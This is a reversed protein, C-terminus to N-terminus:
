PLKPTGAEGLESDLQPVEIVSGVLGEVPHQGRKASWQPPDGAVPVIEQGHRRRPSRNLSGPSREICQRTLLDETASENMPRPQVFPDRGWGAAPSLRSEPARRPQRSGATGQVCQEVPKSEPSSSTTTTQLPQLQRCPPRRWRARSMRNPHTLQAYAELGAASRLPSAAAIANGRSYRSASTTTGPDAARDPARVGAIRLARRGVASEIHSSRRTRAPASSSGREIAANGGDQTREPAGADVPERGGAALRKPAKGSMTASSRHTSRRNAASRPRSRQCRAPQLGPAAGCDLDGGPARGHRGPCSPSPVRARDADCPGPTRRISGALGPRLAAALGPRRREVSRSVGGKRSGRTEGQREAPTAVSRETGGGPLPVLARPRGSIVARRRAVRTDVPGTARGARM